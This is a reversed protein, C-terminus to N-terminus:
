LSVTRTEPLIVTAVFDQLSSRTKVFTDVSVNVALWKDADKVYMDVVPSLALEYLDSSCM